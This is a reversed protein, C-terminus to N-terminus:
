DPGFRYPVTLEEGVSSEERDSKQGLPWAVLHIFWYTELEKEKYSM